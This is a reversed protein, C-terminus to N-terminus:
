DGLISNIKNKRTNSIFSIIRSISLRKASNDDM